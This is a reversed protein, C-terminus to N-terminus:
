ANRNKELEAWTLTGPKMWKGQGQLDPRGNQTVSYWFTLNNTKDQVKRVLNASKDDPMSGALLDFLTETVWIKGPGGRKKVAAKVEDLYGKYQPFNEGKTPYIHCAVADCPWGVKKLEDLWLNGKKMGGSSKRPLVCGGVVLVNKDISKVTKYARKTVQAWTKRNSESWPFMFDALQVENSVELAHIRGKYRTMLNWVFENAHDLNKPVSNSGPPMWPATHENPNKKALWGPTGHMVYCVKAGANQARNFAHDLRSWDYQGPGTHIRAWDCQVDWIRVWDVKPWEWDLDTINLALAM